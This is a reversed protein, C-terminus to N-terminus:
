NKLKPDLADRLGDGMLNFSMVLLMVALGPFLTIYGYDRLFRRGASMLSGWEPAPAPVGLGLFSLISASVVATAIQMSAQVIIPSLSNPLIHKVIIASQTLGSARAAEVFEQDRVTLVSARTIRAFNPFASLGIALMLNFTSTGLASVIAVAMLVNPVSSFIDTCCMIVDDLLGGFYGAIAGLTVGVAMSIIVAVFGVAISYRSGYVIRCFIDRGMEDTGCLHQLSPGQLRELANTAIVQTEYDVLVGSFIAMLLFLCVGTLGIMAGRNRKMRHMVEAFQSRRAYKKSRLERAAM